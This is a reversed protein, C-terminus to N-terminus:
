NPCPLNIEQHVLLRNRVSSQVNNSNEHITKERQTVSVLIGSKKIENEFSRNRKCIIAGTNQCIKRSINRANKQVRIMDFSNVPEHKVALSGNNREELFSRRKNYVFRQRVNGIHVEHTEM